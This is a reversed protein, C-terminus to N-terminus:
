EEEASLSRSIVMLTQDDSQPTDGSFEKVKDIIMNITKRPPLDCEKFLNRLRDDGFLEDAGNKAENIGDSYLGIKMGREFPFRITEYVTDDDNPWMGLADGKPKMVVLKGDAKRILAATHGANGLVCENISMDILLAALTVFQNDNSNAQILRNLDLLFSQVDTFREKLCRVFSSCMSTMLCAPLNKGTADAVILLVRHDDLVEYDYFDGSVEMAPAQYAAFRYDGVKKPIKPMLTRQMKAYSALEQVIRDQKQREKYVLILNASFEAQVALRQFEEMDLDSFARIGDRRNVAVMIGIFKGEFTLPIAMMTWVRHPQVTTKSQEDRTDIIMPKRTKIVEGLLGKGSVVMESKFHATRYRPNEFVKEELASNDITSSYAKEERTDFIPFMATCAAGKLVDGSGSSDDLVYIGISECNIDEWFSSVLIDMAEFTEDVTALKSMFQNLTNRATVHKAEVKRTKEQFAQISGLSWLIFSVAVVVCALFIFPILFDM